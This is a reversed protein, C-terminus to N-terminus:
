ECPYASIFAKSVLLAEHEHLDAPHDELFKAAVRALQGVNVKQPICFLLQEKDLVIEYIDNMYRM